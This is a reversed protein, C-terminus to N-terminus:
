KTLYDVRRAKLRAKAAFKEADQRSAAYSEDLKLEKEDFHANKLDEENLGRVGTSAVVKGTGARGSALAAVGSPKVATAPTGTGLRISLMKVWGKKPASIQFWGGDRKVIDVRGGAALRGVTKADRFPEAKIDDAKLATGAEGAMGARAAFCSFLVAVFFVSALRMYKDERAGAM